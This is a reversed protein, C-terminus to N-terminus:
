FSRVFKQLSVVDDVNEKEFCFYDKVQHRNSRIRIGDFYWHKAELTGYPLSLKISEEVLERSNLDNTSLRHKFLVRDNSKDQVNKNM